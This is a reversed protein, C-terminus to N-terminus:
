GTAMIKFDMVDCDIMSHIDFVNETKPYGERTVVSLPECNM